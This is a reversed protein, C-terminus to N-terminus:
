LRNLWFVDRKIRLMEFCKKEMERVIMPYLYKWHRPFFLLEKAVAKLGIMRCIGSKTLKNGPEKELLSILYLWMTKKEKQTLSTSYSFPVDRRALLTEPIFGAGKKLAIQHYIYWDSLSRLKEDQPMYTEYIKKQVCVSHGPLWFDTHRFLRFVEQPAFFRFSQIPLSYHTCIKKPDEFSAYNSSILPCASNKELAKLLSNLGNPLYLDDAGFLHIFLGKAHIVGTNFAEAIGGNCSRYVPRITYIKRLAEISDRSGDTSGDDVILVEFGDRPANLFISSICRDLLRGNNYNAIIISLLM